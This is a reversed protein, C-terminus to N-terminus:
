HRGEAAVPQVGIGHGLRSESRSVLAKDIQQYLERTPDYSVNLLTTAATLSTAGLSAVLVVELFKRM